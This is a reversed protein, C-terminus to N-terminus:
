ATRSIPSSGTSSRQGTASTTTTSSSRSRCARRSLSPDCKAPVCVCVGVSACVRVCLVVCVQFIPHFYLEEATPRFCSLPHICSNIIERLWKDAVMEIVKPGKGSLTKAAVQVITDCEDFPTRNTMVELMLMGFAYIDVSEDYKEDFIEPAM